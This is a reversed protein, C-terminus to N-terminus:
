RHLLSHSPIIIPLDIWFTTGTSENTSFDVKGGLYNEGILKMSFTGTGRGAGKTSFAREFIMLQTERPIFGPNHVWFRLTNENKNVGTTIISDHQSAELANKIMNILVRSLLAEDSIFVSDSINEALIVESRYNINNTFHLTTEILIDRTHLEKRNVKLEGKEALSFQKQETVMDYLSNYVSELIQLHVPDNHENRKILHIIGHLSGISNMIDHFFIRELEEKRKDASIDEIAVVYYFTGDRFFPTSTFKFNYSKTIGEETSLIKCDRTVQAGSKKSEQMSKMAGCLQCAESAGCGGAVKNSNVCKFLNGPRLDFAEEFDKVSIADLMAQNSYILRRDENLIAVINPLSNILEILFLRTKEDPFLRIIDSNNTTIAKM